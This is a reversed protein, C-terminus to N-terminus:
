ANAAETKLEPHDAVYKWLSSRPIGLQRCIESRSKGARLSQQIQTKQSDWKQRANKRGSPRGLTQGNRRRSALAEKTLRSQLEEATDTVIGFIRAMVQSLVDDEGFKLNDECSCIVVGKQLLERMIATIARIDKGFRFLKEILLVDNRKLGDPNFSSPDLWQDVGIGRQEAYSLITQRQLQAVEAVSSDQVFAYIM